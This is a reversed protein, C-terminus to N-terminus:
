IRTDPDPCIYPKEVLHSISVARGHYLKLVPEGVGASVVNVRESVVIPGARMGARSTSPHPTCSKGM